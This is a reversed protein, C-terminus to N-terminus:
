IREIKKYENIIFMTLEKKFEEDIFEFNSPPYALYFNKNVKVVGFIVNLSDDFIVVVNAVRKHSKLKKIDFVKYHPKVSNKSIHNDCNRVIDEIKQYLDKSFIFIDKFKKNGFDTYSMEITNKNYRIGSIKFSSNFEIIFNEENYNCGTIELSFLNNIFFIFIFIV